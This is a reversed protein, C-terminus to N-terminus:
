GENNTRRNWKEQAQGMSQACGTDVTALCETCWVMWRNGAKHAYEEYVIDRSGCFPCPKLEFGSGIQNKVLRIMEDHM